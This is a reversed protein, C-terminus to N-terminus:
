RGVAKLYELIGEAFERLEQAGVIVAKGYSLSNKDEIELRVDEGTDVYLEFRVNNGCLHGFGTPYKSINFSAM